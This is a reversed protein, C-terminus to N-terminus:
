RAAHRRLDEPTNLNIFSRLEPDYRRLEDEEVLRTRVTEALLLIRSKGAALLKEMAPRCAQSYVAFLPEHGSATHPLVWDAGPDLRALRHILAIEPFPTDCALAFIRPTAAHAIGAHLGAMAGRGPFLDPVVPVPLDPYRAPDGGAVLVQSFLRRMTAILGLLLPTGAFPLLAKDRGMRASHGGALIVATIDNLPERDIARPTSM